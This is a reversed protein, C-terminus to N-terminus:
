CFTEEGDRHIKVISYFNEIHKGNNKRTTDEECKNEIVKKQLPRGTVDFAKFLLTLAESYIYFNKRVSYFFTITKVTCTYSLHGLGVLLENAAKNM